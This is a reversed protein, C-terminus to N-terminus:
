SLTGSILEENQKFALGDNNENLAVQDLQWVFIISVQKYATLLVLIGFCITDLTSHRIDFIKLQYVSM